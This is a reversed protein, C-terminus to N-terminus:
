QEYKTRKDKYDKKVKASIIGKSTIEERVTKRIGSNESIIEAIIDLAGSLAEDASNVQKEPNIFSKLIESKDEKGASYLIIEALEALGKERAISARTKKKPKYPLYIDELMDSDSCDIISKKLEDTMKGLSEIVGIIYDKREELSEIEKYRRSIHLVQKEDMNGTMEKRYRSIFPVTCGDKLLNVTNIIYVSKVKIEASIIEATAEIEIMVSM